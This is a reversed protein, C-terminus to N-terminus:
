LDFPAFGPLIHHFGNIYLAFKLSGGPVRELIWDEGVVSKIMNNPAKRDRYEAQWTSPEL